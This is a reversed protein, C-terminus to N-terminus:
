QYTFKRGTGPLLLLSARALSSDPHDAFSFMVFVWLNNYDLKSYTTTHHILTDKQGCVNLSELELENMSSLMGRKIHYSSIGQM